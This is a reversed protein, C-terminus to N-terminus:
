NKGTDIKDGVKINYKDVFGANVELVHTAAKTSTFSPISNDSPVPADEVIYVVEVEDIWIIDIPFKMGRMWFTAIRRAGLDFYMGSNERLSDRGSLGQSIESPEDAIEASIEVGKIIIKTTKAAHTQNSEVDSVQTKDRNSIFIFLGIIIALAIFLSIVVNLRHNLVKFM